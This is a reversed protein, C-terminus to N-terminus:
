QDSSDPFILDPAIVARLTAQEAGERTRSSLWWVSGKKVSWYSPKGTMALAAAMGLTPQHGVLLVAGKADPWGALKLIAAPDAGPSLEDHTIFHDSLASATQQTRLAPSALIRTGKPMRSKLWHAMIDAQQRGKHTLKREMDPVTDVAEAHRWLLLEM